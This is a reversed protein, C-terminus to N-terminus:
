FFRDFSVFRFYNRWVRASKIAISRNVPLGPGVYTPKISNATFYASPQNRKLFHWVCPSTFREDRAKIASNKDSLSLRHEAFVWIGQVGKVYNNDASSYTYDITRSRARRLDDRTLKEALTKPSFFFLVINRKTALAFRQMFYIDFLSNFSRGERIVNTSARLRACNM